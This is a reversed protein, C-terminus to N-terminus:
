VYIIQKKTTAHFEGTVGLSFAVALLSLIMIKTKMM